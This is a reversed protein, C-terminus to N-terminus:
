ANIDIRDEPDILTTIPHLQSSKLSHYTVFELYNAILGLKGLILICADPAAASDTSLTAGIM